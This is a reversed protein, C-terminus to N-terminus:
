VFIVARQTDREWEEKYRQADQSAEEKSVGDEWITAARDETLHIPLTCLFDNDQSAFTPWQQRVSDIEKAHLQHDLHDERCVWACYDKVAEAPLVDKEIM